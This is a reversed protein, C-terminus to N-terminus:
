NTKHGNGNVANEETALQYIERRLEAVSQDFSEELNESENLRAKLRTQHARVYEKHSREVLELRQLIKGAPTDGAVYNTGASDGGSCNKEIFGSPQVGDIFGTIGSEGLGSQEDSSICKHNRGLAEKTKGDDLEM